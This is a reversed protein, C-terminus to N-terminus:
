PILHWSDAEFFVEGDAFPWASTMSVVKADVWFKIEACLKDEIRALRRNNKFLAEAEERSLCPMRLSAVAQKGQLDGSCGVWNPDLLKLLTKHLSTADPHYRADQQPIRAVQAGVLNGIKFAAGNTSGGFRAAVKDNPSACVCHRRSPFEHPRSWEWLNDVM